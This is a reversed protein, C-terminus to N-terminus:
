ASGSVSSELSMRMQTKLNQLLDEPVNEIEKGALLQVVMRSVELLKSTYGDVSIMIGEEEISLSASYGAEVANTMQVRLYHDFVLLYVKYLYLWIVQIHKFCM